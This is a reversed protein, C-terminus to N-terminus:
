SASVRGLLDKYSDVKYSKERLSAYYEPHKEITEVLACSSSIRAKTFEKLGVSGKRLYQDRFVILDNEPKALDYAKWFLDIDSTVIQAANPDLNKRIEIRRAPPANQALVCTAMLSVTLTMAMTQKM